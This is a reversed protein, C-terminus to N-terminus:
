GVVQEDAADWPKEKSARGFHFGQLYEINMDALLSVIKENEVWEAVVDIGLEKALDAFMRVFARNQSNTDIDVVFSGDIKVLDFELAQLNRFSTYGAGFDDIAIKAGLSRLDRVFKEAVDMNRIAAKETIEVILRQAVEPYNGVRAELYSYWEKDMGVDPSVNISLRADPYSFLVDLTIELIRHDLMTALGLQEAFDVFTAADIPNGDSDDVRMLVEHFAVEHSGSRVIPQFALEIRRENLASIVEDSMRIMKKRESLAFPVSNFSRFSGRSHQKARDLADLACVEATRLDKIEPGLYVGGMTLTVHVPGADTQILEERAAELFREATAEMQKEDCNNILLGFKTGSMRGVLDGDRLRRSVRRAVEKIVQDAIDFGYAENVVRFNDIHAVLYCAQTGSAERRELAQSLQDCFVSRNYLGTLEDFQSLFRLRQERHQRENVVRMIGHVHDARGDRGAFWRGSEEVWLRTESEFGQPALCYICEFPVGKGDDSRGSGFISRYRAGITDPTVHNAFAQGTGLNGIVDCQLVEYANSSWRLRDGGSHWEYIVEGISTLIDRAKEAMKRGPVPDALDKNDKKAM